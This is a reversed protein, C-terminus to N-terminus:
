TSSVLTPSEPDGSYIPVGPYEAQLGAMLGREADEQESAALAATVVLAGVLIYSHSDRGILRFPLSAVIVGAAGIARMAGRVPGDGSEVDAVVRLSSAFESVVFEPEDVDLYEPVPEPEPTSPPGTEPQFAPALELLVVCRCQIWLEPPATIDGPYQMEAPVGHASLIFPEVLQRRQGDAQRHSPRVRTDRASYWIKGSAVGDHIAQQFQAENSGGVAMSIATRSRARKAARDAAREANDVMDDTATIADDSLVAEVARQIALNHETVHLFWKDIFAQRATSDQEVKTEIYALNAIAEDYLDGIMPRVEDNFEKLWADMDLVVDLRSSLPVNGPPDWLRTGKRFNVSRLKQVMINKRREWSRALYRDFIQEWRTQHNIITRARDALPDDAKEEDPTLSMRYATLRTELSDAEEEFQEPGALMTGLHELTTETSM